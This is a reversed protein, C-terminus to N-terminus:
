RMRGARVQPLFPGVFKSASMSSLNMLNDDLILSIDETARLCQGRDVGDREYKYLTLEQSKWNTEVEEIGKEIQVEKTAETV